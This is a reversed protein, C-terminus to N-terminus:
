RRTPEDILGRQLQEILADKAQAAVEVSARHQEFLVAVEADVIQLKEVLEDVSPAAPVHIPHPSLYSPLGAQELRDRTEQAVEHSTPALRIKVEPVFDSRGVVVDVREVWSPLDAADIGTEYASKVAERKSREAADATKAEVLLRDARKLCEKIASVLLEANAGRDLGHIHLQGEADVFASSAVASSNDRICQVLFRSWDFFDTEDLPVDALTIVIGTDTKRVSVAHSSDSENARVRRLARARTTAREPDFNESFAEWRVVWWFVFSLAREAEQVSPQVASDGTTLSLFWVHESPESTFTSALVTAEQQDIRGMLAELQKDETGPWRSVALSASKLKNQQKWADFATTFAVASSSLSEGPNLNTLHHEADRLYQAIEVSHVADALAVTSLRDRLAHGVVDEVYRQTAEVWGQMLAPDPPIADHQSRNRMRHMRHVDGWDRSHWDVLHDGLRSHLEPLVIKKDSTIVGLQDLALHVARECVADLLVLASLRSVVATSRATAIAHDLLARLQVLALTQGPSRAVSHDGSEAVTM